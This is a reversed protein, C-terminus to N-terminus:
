VGPRKWVKAVVVLMDDPPKGECSEYAKELIRDAIQQPNLSRVEDIYEQLFKDNGEDGKFLDYVGDTMMIIFDGSGLKKHILELEINSLIGAPLSASRVVEVRDSRKIFTPVAGVKVFEVEGNYLDIVSLDVTSFSEDSSKLLLISNIM